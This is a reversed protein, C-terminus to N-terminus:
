RLRLWALRPGAAHLRALWAGIVGACAIMLLPWTEIGVGTLRWWAPELYQLYEDPHVPGELFGAV